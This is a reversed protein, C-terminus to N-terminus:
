LKEVNGRPGEFSDRTDFVLEAHEAVFDFDIDDHNTTIIVLDQDALMEETLSESEAGDFQPVSPVFSDHYALNAGRDELLEWIDLAPSQRLDNEM